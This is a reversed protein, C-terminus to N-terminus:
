ILNVLKTIDKDVVKTSDDFLSCIKNIADYAYGTCITQQKICEISCQYENLLEFDIYSVSTSLSSTTLRLKNLTEETVKILRPGNTSATIAITSIFINSFFLIFWMMSMTNFSHIFHFIYSCLKIFEESFKIVILIIEKLKYPICTM